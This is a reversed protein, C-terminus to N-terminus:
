LNELKQHLYQINEKYQSIIKNEKLKELNEIQYISTSLKYVESFVSNIICENDQFNTWVVAYKNNYFADALFSIQGECVYLQCNKVNCFYEQFNSLNKLVPNEYKEHIFNSFVVSDTHQKLLNIINKNNSLTTGVINHKCTIFDRGQEHYPRIWEFNNKLKPANDLDGFHSYVFNYDSNDIINLQKSTNFWNNKNLIFSYKKYLGIDYKEKEELADNFLLSSCQWLPINLTNAIYSTFYEMDSIILDPAYYKIQNYYINFNNNETSFSKPKLINLLCDLTWDISINSPSSKRYAAIKIKYPKDKVAELFRSLQMFSNLTNNAAYLIKIM